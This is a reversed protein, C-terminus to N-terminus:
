AATRYYPRRETWVHWIIRAVAHAVAVKATGTSSRYLVRTYLKKLYPTHRVAHPVSQVLLWRLVSPGQKTIGGGHVLAGSQHVRPVLGLYAGFEKATEFREIQGVFARLAVATIMGVGDVTMLLQCIADEQAVVGIRQGITKLQVTLLEEQKLLQDVVERTQDSVSARAMEARGRRGFPDSTGIVVGERGLVALVQNRVQTRHCVLRRHHSILQRWRVLEGDPQYVEPLYGVRLLDALVRADSRDTKCRSEAILRVRRANALHVSGAQQGVLGIFWWSSTLPEVVVAHRSDLSMAFESVSSEETSLRGSSVENGQGDLVVYSFSRKHLDIGVYLKERDM